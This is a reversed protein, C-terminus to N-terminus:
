KPSGETACNLRGLIFMREDCAHSLADLRRTGVYHRCSYGVMNECSLRGSIAMKVMMSSHTSAANKCGTCANKLQSRLRLSRDFAWAAFSTSERQIHERLQGPYAQAKQKRASCCTCFLGARPQAQNKTLTLFMAAMKGVNFDMGIFLPEGPLVTDFCQNLKRDYAHYISGSQQRM